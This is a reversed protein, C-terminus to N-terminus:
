SPLHTWRKHGNSDEKPKEAQMELWEALIRDLLVVNEGTVTLRRDRHLIERTTTAYDTPTM